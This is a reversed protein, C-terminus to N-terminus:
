EVFIPYSLLGKNTMVKLFYVASSMNKPLECEISNNNLQGDIIKCEIERGLNDFLTFNLIANTSVITFKNKVPNPSIILQENQFERLSNLEVNFACAITDNDPISDLKSSLYAKIYHIGIDMIEVRKKFTIWLSDTPNISAFNATDSYWIKQPFGNSITYIINGKSSTSDQGVNRILIRPYM